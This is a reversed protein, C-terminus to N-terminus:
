GRGHEGAGSEGELRAGGSDADLSREQREETVLSETFDVREEILAMRQNLSEIQERIAELQRAEWAEGAKEGLYRDLADGLRKVFPRAVFGGVLILLTVVVFTFILVLDPDWM